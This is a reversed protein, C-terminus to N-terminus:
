TLIEKKQPLPREGRTFHVFWAKMGVSHFRNELQNLLGLCEELDEKEMAELMDLSAVPTNKGIPRTELEARRLMVLFQKPPIKM